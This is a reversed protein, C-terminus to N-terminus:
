KTRFLLFPRDHMVFVQIRKHEEPFNMWVECITECVITITVEINKEDGIIPTKNQLIVRGGPAHAFKYAASVPKKINTKYKKGRFEVLLQLEGSIMKYVKARTWETGQKQGQMGVILAQVCQDNIKKM